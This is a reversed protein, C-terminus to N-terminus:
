AAATLTEPEEPEPEPEPELEVPIRIGAKELAAELKEVKASLPNNVEEASILGKYHEELATLRDEITPQVPEQQNDEAM